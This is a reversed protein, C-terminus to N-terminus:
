PQIQYMETTNLACLSLLFCSSPFVASSVLWLDSWHWCNKKVLWCHATCVAVSLNMWKDPKPVSSLYCSVLLSLVVHLLPRFSSNFWCVVLNIKVRCFTGIVSYRVFLHLSLSHSLLVNMLGMCRIEVQRCVAACLCLCLSSSCFLQQLMVDHLLHQQIVFM